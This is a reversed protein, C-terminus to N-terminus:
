GEPLLRYTPSSVRDFASHITIAATSKKKKEETAQVRGRRETAQPQVMINM